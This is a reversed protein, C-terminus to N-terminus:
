AALEDVLSRLDEVDDDDEGTWRGTLVGSVDRAGLDDALNAMWADSAIHGSTTASYGRAAWLRRESSPMRECAESLLEVASDRSSSADLTVGLRKAIIMAGAAAHQWEASRAQQELWTEGVSSELSKLITAQQEDEALWNLLSVVSTAPSRAIWEAHRIVSWVQSQLRPPLLDVGESRAMFGLYLIGVARKGKQEHENSMTQQIVRSAIPLSQGGVHHRSLFGDGEVLECKLNFEAFAATFAARDLEHNSSIGVDDGQHISKFSDALPWSTIDVGQKALSYLVAWVAIFTGIESTLKLGTRTGGFATNVACWADALSWSPTVLPLRESAIWYDIELTLDPWIEKWLTAVAEQLGAPVSLDYGSIDGEYRFTHACFFKSDTLGRRWMGPLHKRAWKLRSFLPRLPRNAMPSSMQVIRNRQALGRWEAIDRWLGDDRSFTRLPMWKYVAGSRGGLGYAMTAEDPLGAVANLAACNELAAAMVPQGPRPSLLAGVLKAAPGAVFTPAGANTDSPDPDGAPEPGADNAAKRYRSALFRGVEWMRANLEFNRIGPGQAAIFWDVAKGQQVIFKKSHATETTLVRAPDCQRMHQFAGSANMQESHVRSAANLWEDVQGESQVVMSGKLVRSFSPHRPDRRAIPCAAFRWHRPRRVHIVSELNLSGPTVVRRVGEQIGPPLASMRHYKFNAASAMLVVADAAKAM